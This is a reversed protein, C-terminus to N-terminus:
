DELETSLATVASMAEAMADQLNNLMREAIEPNIEDNNGLLEEFVVDVQHIQRIYGAFIINLKALNNVLARNNSALNRSQLNIMWVIGVAVFISPVVIPKDDQVTYFLLVLGTILILLAALYSIVFSNVSMRYAHITEVIARQIFETVKTDTDLMRQIYADTARKRTQQSAMESRVTDRILKELKRTDARLITPTAKTTQTKPPM